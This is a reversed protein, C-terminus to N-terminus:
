TAAPPPQSAREQAAIVEKLRDRWLILYRLEEPDDTHSEAKNLCAVAQNMAGGREMRSAKHLWHDYWRSM